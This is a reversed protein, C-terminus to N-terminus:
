RAAVRVIQADRRLGAIWAAKMEECRKATLDAKLTSEVEAFTKARPPRIETFRVIHFGYITQVVESVQGRPLDRTAKEFADSLSGRHVFGMDGGSTKSADTSYKRAMADFAAGATLQRQVDQARAKADAWQQSPASPDVGITIAYMHLQEPLVFRDPNQEFYRRADDGGVSCRGTVEHDRAKEITLSRQLERRAGAMTAGARRLTAAFDQPTAFKRRLTNLAAEVEADTPHIGLHLGRQYELEENIITQLAQDRVEALRAPTVNRHFSEQPIIAGVAADFRDNMLPTGNVRVVERAAAPATTPHSPVARQGAATAASVALLTVICITRM